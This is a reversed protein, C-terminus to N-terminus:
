DRLAQVRKAFPLAYPSTTLKTTTTIHDELVRLLEEPNDLAHSKISRIARFTVYLAECIPPPPPPPLKLPKIKSVTTTTNTNSINKADKTSKTNKQLASQKMQIQEEALRKEEM